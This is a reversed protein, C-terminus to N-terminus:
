WSPGQARLLGGLASAADVGSSPVIRHAAHDGSFGSSRPFDHAATSPRQESLDQWLTGGLAVNVVQAGRCIGLIPARLREGREFLAFDQEDRAPDLKLNSVRVAEGYHAPAIDPGGGLVLADFSTPISDGPRIVRVSSAGARRLAESIAGDPQSSDSSVVVLM